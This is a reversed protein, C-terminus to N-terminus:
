MYTDNTGPVPIYSPSCFQTGPVLYGTPIFLWPVIPIGNKKYSTFFTGVPAQYMTCYQYLCLVFVVTYRYMGSSFKAWVTHMNSSNICYLCIIYGYTSYWTSYDLPLVIGQPNVFIGTILGAAVVNNKNLKISDDPQVVKPESVENVCQM